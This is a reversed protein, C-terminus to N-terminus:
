DSSDLLKVSHRLRLLIENGEELREVITYVHNLETYKESMPKRELLDVIRFLPISNISKGIEGGGTTVYIMKVFHRVASPGSDSDLQLGDVDANIFEIYVRKELKFFNALEDNSM